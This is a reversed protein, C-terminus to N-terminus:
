AMYGPMPQTLCRCGRWAELEEGRVFDPLLIDRELIMVDNEVPELKFQASDEGGFGGFFFLIHNEGEELVVPTKILHHGYPDGSYRVGNLIFSGIKHAEALARCRMDCQFKAYAAGSFLDWEVGM